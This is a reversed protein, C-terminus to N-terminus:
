FNFDLDDEDHISEISLNEEENILEDLTDQIAELINERQTKENFYNDPIKRCITLLQNTIIIKETLVDTEPMDPVSQNLIQEIDVSSVWKKDLLQFIEEILVGEKM